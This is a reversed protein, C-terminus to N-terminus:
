INGQTNITNVFKKAMKHNASPGCHILDRASPIVPYDDFGDLLNYYFLVNHKDCINQMASLNKRRNLESNQDHLLYQQQYGELWNLIVTSPLISTWNGAFIEYRSIDPVTCAVFKINLQDIWYELFRYCTDLASGGVGLNWIKQGLMKELQKPWTDDAHIGIGQTHSCGLALGAPQQDFEDDRFGESNFKYIIDTGIWGLKELKERTNQEACNQEFLEKTDMPCWLQTNSAYIQNIHYPGTCPM